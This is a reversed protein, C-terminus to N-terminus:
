RSPLQRVARLTPAGHFGDARRDGPLFRAGLQGAFRAVDVVDLEVHEEVADRDARLHRAALDAVDLEPGADRPVLDHHDGGLVDGPGVDDVEDEVVLRSEGRVDDVVGLLRHDEEGVGIAGEELAGAVGDLDVDLRQRRDEGDLLREGGALHDPAGVIDELGEGDDLAVDLGRQGPGVHDDLASVLGPRLLLEVDLGVPDDGVGGLAPDGDPARHLARIVHLLREHREEADAGLLRAHDLELGAAAEASFFFVRRHQRRVRREERALRAPRHLHDVVALLVHHRGGLAV